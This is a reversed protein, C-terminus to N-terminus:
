PWLNRSLTIVAGLTIMTQFAIVGCEGRITPIFNRRGVRMLIAGDEADVKHKTGDHEVFLIKTRAPGGYDQTGAGVGPENQSSAIFLGGSPPRLTTEPQTGVRLRKSVARM